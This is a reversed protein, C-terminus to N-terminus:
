SMKISLDALMSSIEKIREMLNKDEIHSKLLEENLESLSNKLKTVAFLVTHEDILSLLKSLGMELVEMMVFLEERKIETNKEIDAYYTAINKSLLEVNKRLRSKAMPTDVAHRIDPIDYIAHITSNLMVDNHTKNLDRLLRMLAERSEEKVKEIERESTKYSVYAGIGTLMCIITIWFGMWGSTKDIMISTEARYHESLQYMCSYLSDVQKVRSIYDAMYVLTDNGHLYCKAITDVKLTDPMPPLFAIEQNKLDSVTRFHVCSFFTGVIALSVILYATPISYNRFCEWFTGNQTHIDKAKEM